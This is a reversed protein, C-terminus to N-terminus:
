GHGPRCGVWACRDSKEHSASLDFLRANNSRFPDSLVLSQESEYQVSQRLAAYFHFHGRKCLVTFTDLHQMNLGSSGADNFAFEVAGRARLYINSFKRFVFSMVIRGIVSIVSAIRDNVGRAWAYPAALQCTANAPVKAVGPLPLLPNQPHHSKAPPV